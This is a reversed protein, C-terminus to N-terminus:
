SGCVLVIRITYEALAPHSSFRHKSAKWIIELPVYFQLAYTFFIAIAIMVKVSQALLEDPLNLTISGKTAAGFRLYGLFGLISYLMVTVFMGINLVGPCGLFNEPTKMNNELPMVVGIGELAFIATGFFLPWKTVPAFAPRSDFPPLDQFLYYITIAIGMAICVNAVMSLPALYKLNRIMNIAILPPLCCLMYIRVDIGSDIYLDFVQKLNSTVFVIYVCCCGLLDLVLFTNVMFRATSAFKQVKQPGELFAVEAVDAFGLSPLKRRQCLQHACQVLINVCYTSILGVSFTAILGFLLGANAFAQPMALIGTGLSGKLLHILTEADTTPHAVNRNNYPNYKNRTTGNTQQVVVVTVLNTSSNNTSM